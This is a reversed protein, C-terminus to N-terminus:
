KVCRVQIGLRKLYNSVGVEDHYLYLGYAYDNSHEMTSWYYMESDVFSIVGKSAYGGFGWASKLTSYNTNSVLTNFESQSPVHWPMPCMFSGAVVVCSWTYYYRGDHVRYEAATYNVDPLITTQTCNSPTAVVRDSWTQNGITWTQTSAAGPPTFLNV